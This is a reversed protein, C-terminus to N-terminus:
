HWLPVMIVVAERLGIGEKEFWERDDAIQALSRPPSHGIGIRDVCRALAATAAYTADQITFGHAECHPVDPFLIRWEGADSHLLMAVYHAEPRQSGNLRVPRINKM